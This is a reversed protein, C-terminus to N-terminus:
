RKKYRVYRNWMSSVEVRRASVVQRSRKKTAPLGAKKGAANCATALDELLKRSTARVLYQADFRDITPNVHCHQWYVPLEAHLQPLGFRFSELAVAKHQRSYLIVYEPYM